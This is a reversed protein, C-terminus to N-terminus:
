NQGGERELVREKTFWRLVARLGELDDAIAQDEVPDDGRLLYARGPALIAWWPCGTRSTAPLIRYYDEGLPEVQVASLLPVVTVRWRRLNGSVRVGEM